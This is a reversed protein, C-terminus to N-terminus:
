LPQVLLAPEEAHSAQAGATSEAAEQPVEPNLSGHTEIAGPLEGEEVPENPTTIALAAELRATEAEEPASEADSSVPATERIASPYYVNEMKWLDFSAEVGTQKLAENWVQSCYLRCVRPVQAKLTARTEVVELDYAEEEAKEKSSEAETKAFEVETKARLAEDKAWETVNKAGKAM